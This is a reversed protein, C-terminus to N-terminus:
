VKIESDDDRAVKVVKMVYDKTKLYQKCHPFFLQLFEVHMHYRRRTLALCLTYPICIGSTAHTWADFTLLRLKEVKRQVCKQYDKLTCHNHDAM